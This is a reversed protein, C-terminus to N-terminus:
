RLARHEDLRARLGLANATAAGLTTNDFICWITRDPRCAQHLTEALSDLFEETYSSYYARPSGHMRWYEIGRWGGPEAADPIRAPDAAVRAVRYQELLASSERDFWSAHRPELAIDGAYRKRLAIFFSETVDAAFAFSPPLQVLLCGLRAGLSGTEELFADLLANSGVLRHGHTITKPM